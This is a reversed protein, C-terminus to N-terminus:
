KLTWLKRELCQELKILDEKFYETLFAKSEPDMQPRTDYPTARSRTREAMQSIKTKRLFWILPSLNKRRIFLRSSALIRNLWKYKPTGSVNKKEDINNPLFQQVGLFDEVKWLFEEPNQLDDYLMIKVDKFLDTYRRVQEYYNSRQLLDNREKLATNFPSHIVGKQKYYLYQSFTREVPNRLIILIKMDPNLEKIKQPATEDWLYSPCIEGKVQHSEADKFFSLYWNIDKTHNINIMTPDEVFKKNFYHIEKTPPIFIDPHKQLVSALWTTGAKEAGVCIFDINM